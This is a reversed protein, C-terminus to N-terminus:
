PLLLREAVMFAQVAQDLRALKRREGARRRAAAADAHLVLGPSVETRRAVSDLDAQMERDLALRRRDIDMLDTYGCPRHPDAMPRLWALRNALTDPLTSV